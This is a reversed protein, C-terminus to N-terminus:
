REMFLFALAYASYIIERSSFFFSLIVNKGDSPAEDRAFLDICTCLHTFM